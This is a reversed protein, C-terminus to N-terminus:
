YRMQQVFDARERILDVLETTSDTEQYEKESIIGKNYGQKIIADRKKEINPAYIGIQDLVGDKNTFVIRESTKVSVKEYPRKEKDRKTVSDKSVFPGGRLKFRNNKTVNIEGSNVIEYTSVFQGTDKDRFQGNNVDPLYEYNPNPM